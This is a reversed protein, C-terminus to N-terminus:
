KVMGDRSWNVKVFFLFLSVREANTNRVDGHSTASLRINASGLGLVFCHIRVQGGAPISAIIGDKATPMVISGNLSISWSVNTASTDGNNKLIALVGVGGRIKIDILPKVPMGFSSWDSVAGHIDKAKAHVMYSGERAWSHNQHSTVGSPVPGLWGSYTNDGWDIYYFIADGNPDSSVVSYEYSLTQVGTSPGDIAPAEPPKNPTEIVAQTEDTVVSGSGDTVSLTVTYTGTAAYTHTPNQETSTTTDGFEWYWSFDPHGGYVSGTFHVSTNVIGHYPGNADALFEVDGFAFVRGDGSAVFV